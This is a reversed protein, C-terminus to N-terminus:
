ARMSANRHERQQVRAKAKCEPLKAIDSPRAAINWTVNRDVRGQTRGPRRGRGAVPYHPEIVKLLAKSPVVQEM